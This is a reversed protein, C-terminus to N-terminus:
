ATNTRTTSRAAATTTSSTESLAGEAIIVDHSELEIHVYEVKDVREAQVISRRQGPAQGRDALRRAQDEFICRM